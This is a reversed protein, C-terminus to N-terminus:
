VFAVQNPRCQLSAGDRSSSSSSSGGDGGDISIEFRLCDFKLNQNLFVVNQFKGHVAKGDVHTGMYVVVSDGRFPDFLQLVQITVNKMWKKKRTTFKNSRESEKQQPCPKSTIQIVQKLVQILDQALPAIPLVTHLKVAPRRVDVVKVMVRVFYGDVLDIFCDIGAYRSVISLIPHPSLARLADNTVLNYPIATDFKEPNMARMREGNMVSLTAPVITLSRTQASLGDVLTRMDSMHATTLSLCPVQQKHAVQKMNFVKQAQTVTTTALPVDFRFIGVCTACANVNTLQLYVVTTLTGCFQCCVDGTVQACCLQRLSFSHCNMVTVTPCYGLTPVVVKDSPLERGVMTCINTWLSTNNELLYKLGICTSALSTITSLGGIVAISDVTTTPLLFSIAMRFAISYSARDFIRFLQQNPLSRVTLTSSSAGM